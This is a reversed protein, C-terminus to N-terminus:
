TAQRKEALARRTRELAEADEGTWVKPPPPSDGFDGRRSTGADDFEGGLLRDLFRGKAPDLGCFQRLSVPSRFFRVSRLRAIGAPYAAIWDAEALRDLAAPPPKAMRWPKGPGANWAKRLAEWSEPALSERPPHLVEERRKEPLAETVSEANCSRGERSAGTVSAANRRREVRKKTLARAKATDSCHRDFRPFCLGSDTEVLWGVRVLTAGFGERRTFRDVWALDLGEVEGDETHRDVWGWLRHLKGVVWEEDIGCAHALRIVAPDDGLDHRMKLWDGAM